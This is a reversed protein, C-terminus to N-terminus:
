TLKGLTIVIHDSKKEVKDHNYDADPSLPFNRSLSRRIEEKSMVNGQDDKKEAM